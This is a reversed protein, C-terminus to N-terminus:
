CEKAEKAQTWMGGIKAETKVKVHSEGGHTKTKEETM